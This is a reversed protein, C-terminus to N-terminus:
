ALGVWGRPEEPRLVPVAGIGALRVVRAGGGSSCGFPLALGSPLFNQERKAIKETGAATRRWAGTQAPRRM